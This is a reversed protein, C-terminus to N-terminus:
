LAACARGGGNEVFRVLRAISRAPWTSLFSVSPWKWVYGCRLCVTVDYPSWCGGRTRFFENRVLHSCSGSRFLSLQM